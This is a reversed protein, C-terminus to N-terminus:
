IFNATLSRPSPTESGTARDFLLVSAKASNKLCIRWDAGSRVKFQTFRVLASAIELAMFNVAAVGRPFEVENSAGSRGSLGALCELRM